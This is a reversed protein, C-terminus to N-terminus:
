LCAHPLAGELRPGAMRQWSRANRMMERPHMQQTAVRKAGLIRAAHAKPTRERTIRKYGYARHKASRAQRLQAESQRFQMVDRRAAEVAQLLGLDAPPPEAYVIPPMARVTTGPNALVKPQMLWLLFFMPIFALAAFGFIMVLAAACDKAARRHRRSAFKAVARQIFQIM